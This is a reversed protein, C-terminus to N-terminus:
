NNQAGQCIWTAITDILEPALPPDGKPMQSGTCLNAGTLKGIFLSSAPDGPVVVAGCSITTELLSQYANGSTLDLSTKGGGPQGGRGGIGDHCGTSACSANSANYANFIPQVDSAFSVSTSGCQCQGDFCSAGTGCSTGCAGCNNSDSLLDVCAGGCEILGGCGASCQGQLCFL